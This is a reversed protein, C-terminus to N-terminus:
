KIFYVLYELVLISLLVRVLTVRGKIYWYYVSCFLEVVCVSECLSIVVLGMIDTMM